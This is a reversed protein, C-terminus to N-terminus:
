LTHIISVKLSNLSAIAITTTMDIVHFTNKCLILTELNPLHEFIDSSLSHMENYALDLTKLNKLPDDQDKGYKGKFVDRDLSKKTLKNNSLDLVTLQTLNQFAGVSINNIQNFSLYLSKVPYTPLVPIYSINNHNLKIIEFLVDGNQLIQWEEDSFLSNMSKNTCDIQLYNIDCVCKKCLASDTINIKPQM